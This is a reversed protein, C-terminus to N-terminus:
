GQQAPKSLVNRMQDRSENVVGTVNLLIDKGTDEGLRRSSLLAVMVGDGFTIPIRFRKEEADELLARLEGIEEISASFQEWVQLRATEVNEAATVKRFEESAQDDGIIVVETLCTYPEAKPVQIFTAKVGVNGEDDFGSNISWDVHYTDEQM